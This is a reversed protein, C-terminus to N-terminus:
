GLERHNQYPYRCRVANENLKLLPQRVSASPDLRELRHHKSELQNGHTVALETSREHTHTLYAHDGHAHFRLLSAHM